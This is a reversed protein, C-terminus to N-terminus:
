IEVVRYRDILRSTFPTPVEHSQGHMVAQRAEYLGGIQILMWAVLSQPVTDPADFAGCRFTVRVDTGQPLPGDGSLKLFVGDEIAYADAPLTQEAGAADRYMVSEIATVDQWLRIRRAFVSASVRCRQPLLPRHLEGELAERAAVIMGTIEQDAAADAEDDIRLHTKARALTIAEQVPPEIVGRM